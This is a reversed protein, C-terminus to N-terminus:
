REPNRPPATRGTAPWTYAMDAATAHRLLVTARVEPLIAAGLSLLMPIRTTLGTTAAAGENESAETNGENDPEIQRRRPEDRARAM